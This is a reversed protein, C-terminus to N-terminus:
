RWEMLGWFEKEEDAQTKAQKATGRLINRIAIYDLLEGYPMVM